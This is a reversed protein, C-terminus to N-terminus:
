LDTLSNLYNSRQWRLHNMSGNMLMTLSFEINSDHINFIPQDRLLVINLRATDVTQPVTIV